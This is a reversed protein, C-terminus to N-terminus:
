VFFPVLLSPSISADCYLQLVQLLLCAWYWHLGFSDQRRVYGVTTAAGSAIRGNPHSNQREIGLGLGPGAQWMM